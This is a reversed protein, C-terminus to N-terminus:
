PGPHGIRLSSLPSRCYAGPPGYPTAVTCREYTVGRRQLWLDATGDRYPRVLACTHPYDPLGIPALRACAYASGPTGAIAPSFAMAALLIMVALLILARM